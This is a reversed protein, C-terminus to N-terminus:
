IHMCVTTLRHFRAKQICETYGKFWYKLSVYKWDGKQEFMQMRRCLPCEFHEGYKVRTGDERKPLPPTRLVKANEDTGKSSDAYETHSKQLSSQFKNLTNQYSDHNQLKEIPQYTSAKEGTWVTNGDPGVKIEHVQQMREQHWKRALIFQRRRTIAEGLRNRLWIHRENAVPFKDGVRIIDINSDMPIQSAAKVYEDTEPKKRIIMSLRLLHAIGDDIALSLEILDSTQQLPLSTGHSESV